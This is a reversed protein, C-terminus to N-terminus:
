LRDRLLEAQARDPRPPPTDEPLARGLVVRVFRRGGADVEPRPARLKAVPRLRAALVEVGRPGFPLDDQGAADAARNLAPRHPAAVDLREDRHGAVGVDGERGDVRAGNRARELRELRAVDDRGLLRRDTGAEPAIAGVSRRERPRM